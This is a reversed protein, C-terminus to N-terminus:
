SGAPGRGALTKQELNDLEAVLDPGFLYLLEQRQSRYLTLGQDICILSNDVIESSPRLVANDVCIPFLWCITPKLEHYDLGNEYCYAHIGCGRADKRRFICTGDAVQTRQYAGSHLEADAHVEKQLWADRSIGLFAELGAAHRGGLRTANDLDVDCGFQCCSDHCFTCDLCHTFYQRLFIQPSVQRVVLDDNRSVYDRSLAVLEVIVTASM